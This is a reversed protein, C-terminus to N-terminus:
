FAEKGWCSRPKLGERARSERDMSDLNSLFFGKRWFDVRIARATSTGEQEGCGRQVEKIM